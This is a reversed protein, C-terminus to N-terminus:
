LPSMVLAEFAASDGEQARRILTLEDAGSLKADEPIHGALEM